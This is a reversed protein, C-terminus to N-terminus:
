RIGRLAIDDSHSVDVVPLEGVIVVRQSCDRVAHYVLPPVPTVEQEAIESLELAPIFAYMTHIVVLSIALVVRHLTDANLHEACKFKFVSELTGEDVGSDGPCGDVKLGGRWGVEVAGANHLHPWVGNNWRAHVYLM